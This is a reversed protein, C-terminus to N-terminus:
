WWLAKLREPPAAVEGNIYPIYPATVTSSQHSHRYSEHASASSVAFAGALAIGAATTSKFM